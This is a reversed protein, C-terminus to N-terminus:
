GDPHQHDLFELITEYELGYKQALEDIKNLGEKEKASLSDARIVLSSKVEGRPVKSSKRQAQQLESMLSNIKQLSNKIREVKAGFQPDKRDGAMDAIDQAEEIKPILKVINEVQKKVDKLARQSKGKKKKSGKWEGSFKLIDAATIQYKDILRNHFMGIEKSRKAVAASTVMDLDEIKEVPGVQDLHYINQKGAGMDEVDLVDYWKGKYKAKWKAKTSKKDPM